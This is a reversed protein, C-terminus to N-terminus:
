EIIQPKKGAETISKQEQFVKKTNSIDAKIRQIERKDGLESRAENKFINKLKDGFYTRLVNRAVEESMKLTQSDEGYLDRFGFFDKLWEHTEEEEDNM